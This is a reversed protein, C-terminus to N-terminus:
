ALSSSPIYSSTLIMPIYFNNIDNRFVEENVYRYITREILKQLTIKHRVGLIKFNDYLDPTIKITTAIKNIM